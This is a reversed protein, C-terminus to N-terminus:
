KTRVRAIRNGAVADARARRLEDGGSQELWRRIVRWNTRYHETIGDWGMLIYTERFDAPCPRYPRVRGTDWCRLRRPPAVAASAM